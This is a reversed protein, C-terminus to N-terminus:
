VSPVMVGRAARICHQLSKTLSRPMRLRSNMLSYSNLFITPSPALASSFFSSLLSPLHNSSTEPLACCRAYHSHRRTVKIPASINYSLFPLSRDLVNLSSSAVVKSQLSKVLTAQFPWLCSHVMQYRGSSLESSGLLSPTMLLLAM